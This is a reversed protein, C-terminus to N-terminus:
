LRLFIHMWCTHLKEHLSTYFIIDSFDFFIFSIIKDNFCCTDIISKWWIYKIQAKILNLNFDIISDIENFINFFSFIFTSYFKMGKWKHFLILTKTYIIYWCFHFIYLLIFTWQIQQQYLQNKISEIKFKIHYNRNYPIGRKNVM